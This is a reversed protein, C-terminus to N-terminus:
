YIAPFPPANFLPFEGFSGLMWDYECMDQHHAVKRISAILVLSPWIYLAAESYTRPIGVYWFVGCTTRLISTSQLSANWCVVTREKLSTPTQEEPIDRESLLSTNTRRTQYFKMLAPSSCLLRISDVATIRCYKLWTELRSKNFGIHYRLLHRQSSLLHVSLFLPTSKHNM